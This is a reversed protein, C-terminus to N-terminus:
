IRAITFVVSSSSPRKEIIRTLLALIVGISTVIIAGLKGTLPLIV